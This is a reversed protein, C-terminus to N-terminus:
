ILDSYREEYHTISYANRAEELKKSEYEGSNDQFIEDYLVDFYTKDVLPNVRTNYLIYIASDSNNEDEPNYSLSYNEDVNTQLAKINENEAPGTYIVIHLGYSTRVYSSTDGFKGAGNNYLSLGAENFEKVFSSVANGDEDQGIVYCSKANFMGTDENYMYIYQNILDAKENISKANKLQTQILELLGQATLSSEKEVYNGDADKERVVPKLSAYLANLDNEYAERSYSGDYGMDGVDPTDGDSPSQGYFKKYLNNYTEQQQDDFKLLINAVTFYQTGDNKYYYVSSADEQITSDYSSDNEIEYQVYGRRVKSSYLSLIDNITVSSVEDYNEYEESYVEVMYNEYMIDCLREIERAFLSPSDQSLNLGQESSILAQKYKEFAKQYDENGSTVLEIFNEYIVNLDKKNTFDHANSEDYEFGDLVKTPISTRVIQGNEIKANKSYGEFTITEEDSSSSEEGVIDNYYSNINDILGDMTEQWIYGKEKKTLGGRSEVIDEAESVTIKRNEVIKLSMDYAEKASYGYYQEYMAGYNSYAEILEKKTISITKGDKELTSVITDYYLQTNRTFLSCGTLISMSFLTFCLLLGVFKKKM